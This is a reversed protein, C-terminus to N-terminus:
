GFGEINEAIEIVKRIVPSYNAITHIGYFPVQLLPPDVDLCRLKGAAIDDAYYQIPLLAVGLGSRALGASIEMSNSRDQKNAMVNDALFWNEQM